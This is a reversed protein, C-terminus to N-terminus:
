PESSHAIIRELESKELTAEIPKYAYDIAWYNKEGKPVVHFVRENGECGQRMGDYSLGSVSRDRCDSSEENGDGRSVGPGPGDILCGAM